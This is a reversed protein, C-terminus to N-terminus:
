EEDMVYTHISMVAMVFTVIAEKAIEEMKITIRKGKKTAKEFEGVTYMIAVIDEATEENFRESCATLFAESAIEIGYRNHLMDLLYLPMTQLSLLMSWPRDKPLIMYLGEILSHFAQKMEEGRSGGGKVELQTFYRLTQAVGNALDTYFAEHKVAATGLLRKEKVIMKAMEAAPILPYRAAHACIFSFDEFLATDLQEKQIREAFGLLRKKNLLLTTDVADLPQLLADLLPTKACEYEEEFAVGREEVLGFPLYFNKFLRTKVLRDFADFPDDSSWFDPVIEKQILDYLQPFAELLFASYVEPERFMRERDHVIQLMVFAIENTLPTEQMYDFYGLNIGGFRDFLYLFKQAESAQLWAKAMTGHVLHGKSVRLLKGVECLVRARIASIHEEEFFRRTHKLLSQETLSPMCLAIEKVVKTPLNGKPTLKLGKGETAQLLLDVHKMIPVEIAEKKLFGPEITLGRTHLAEIM